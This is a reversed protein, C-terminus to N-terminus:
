KAAPAAPAAPPAEPVPSAGPRGALYKYYQYQFAVSKRAKELLEKAVEPKTQTLMKYRNEGYLYNELPLKPEKSDLQLPNKGEALLGPNYRYLLWHGSDVAKKQEQLGNRMEIGHAICHSYAIVISPGDYAEAELLAKVAQGDSAGLAVKAVYVNGYSMAMMGLDKKGGAKGGAAFKAVAGYPTSKSAQGGTNSYVETDLVLVNVNRGSALVHDLGGYGIDYAWGDGGVIWVSRKVLNDALDLLRRAEPSALGRLKEKLARVRERQALIDAETKQPAQILADVLDGGLQAALKHLLLHTLDLQMDAALRVGLGFEANDEFLSNAWSPGRGERNKTWPTTPLNGGYISSCGTANAVIMRDGFLRSIMSIYPTEGCGECAGSYEFLPQMLTAQRVLGTKIKSRDAEPLDLFFRYNEKEAARLPAQEEMNIARRSPDAKDKAPCSDVCLSCGTCDEPAVQLLYKQSKFEADMGAVSKLTAPADKLAEPPAVKARIAAHPCVAVCRGCQICLSPNWVPIERALNRKEWQSTGTPFTGDAPFASVPLSDGEYAYITGLVKGVFDGSEKPFPWPVDWGSGARAPVPIEHLHELTHDVAQINKKVVDEGKRGYTKKIAKKIAAIAQERPLVGSVAFFCTQMITNIRSGMGTAKAVANADIAYLRAKRGAMQEQLRHPLSDWVKETPQPSNLLFVGGEALFKGMDYRELFVPQHCAVFNARNVLYISHIPSKGFRLHSTTVVGAKKSDYVFYGQAYNDTEEGIIKITNKNAGVTGDSGLGFFLGSFLGQPQTAFSEDVDLSSHSVDDRIGVSFHNKPSASAMNDFVAKVQGPTFDKSALGYRGSLVRPMAKLSGQGAALGESLGALANLYLPEGAAGHERCRDLVSLSRTTAPLAEMLRRSDFPLFLRAKLVGVKEGRAVLADCVEQAVECGSGMLMVVREADPAGYYQFIKYERGVVKKFKEMVRAVVDPCAAYYPNRREQMQFFVDPNQSSGRLKPDDPNLARRRHQSVLEDDIMARIQEDPIVEIKSVEHSTRFGDFFHLFPVRSELTAAQAILAMDMAEQVSASSLMAFGTQRCAMVDSHDGFISLAHTALTRASVHFVTSTLEGAIKYMNPIMLLLGQSATFTTTLAGGQLSGHLAGAAGGESQMEFVKPVSEWINKLGGAEWEDCYEAMTSSPTIPYITMVENTRYAVHAVAENGDMARFTKESM